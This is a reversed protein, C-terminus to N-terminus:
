SALYRQWVASTALWPVSKNAAARALTQSDFVLQAYRSLSQWAGCDEVDRRFEEYGFSGDPREFIDVCHDGYENEFSVFVKNKIPDRVPICSSSPGYNLL